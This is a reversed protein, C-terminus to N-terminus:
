FGSPDFAGSVKKMVAIAEAETSWTGNLYSVATNTDLSDDTFVSVQWVGPSTEAVGLACTQDLNLVGIGNNLLVWAM